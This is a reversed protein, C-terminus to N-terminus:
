FIDTEKARVILLKVCYLSMLIHRVRVYVSLLQVVSKMYKMEYKKQLANIM